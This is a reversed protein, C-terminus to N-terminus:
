RYLKPKNPKHRRTDAKLAKIRCSSVSKGLFPIPQLPMSICRHVQEFADKSLIPLQDQWRQIKKQFMGKTSHLHIERM